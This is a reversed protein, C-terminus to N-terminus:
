FKHSSCSGDISFTSPVMMGDVEYLSENLECVMGGIQRIQCIPPGYEEIRMVQWITWNEWILQALQVSLSVECVCVCVCVFPKHKDFILGLTEKLYLLSM